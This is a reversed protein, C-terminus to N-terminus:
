LLLWPSTNGIPAPGTPMLDARLVVSFHKERVGGRAGGFHARVRTSLSQGMLVLVGWFRHDVVPM